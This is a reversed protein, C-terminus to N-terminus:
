SYEDRFSIWQFELDLSCDAYIYDMSSDFHLFVRLVSFSKGDNREM